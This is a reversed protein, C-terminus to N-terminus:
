LDQQGPTLYQEAYPAFLRKERFLCVLDKDIHGAQEMQELISLAKSLPMPHKYPRDAATLAEFIDAIAMIRTALDLETQDKGDPYGSGDLKEHHASAIAPVKRLKKPFPLESLIKRTAVVHNEIVKREDTSLNGRRISLVAVEEETLLPEHGPYLRREAIQELRQIHHDEMFFKGQNCKYVFALDSELQAQEKELEEELRGIRLRGQDGGSDLAQIKKKLFLTELEQKILKFRIIVVDIGDRITELKTSKNVVYEPTTIKGVDHMWAAVRLEELEDRSFKAGALPGTDQANVGQAILEALKVVRNIHGGTYPSKEDIAAAISKIFSDLLHKLGAILRRNNLAAAALSALACAVGTLESDFPVVQGTEQNVANLLQLVGTINEEHDFMPIVLMSESRYGTKEDYARAGSFNFETSDYIDEINFTKGTLAACASIHHMNPSGNEAYLPVSPFHGEDKGTGAVIGLSKNRVFAFDLHTEQDNIIYLTGADATSIRLAEDLIMELLRNIDHEATLALVIDLINKAPVLKLSYPNKYTSCMFLGKDYFLRPSVRGMLM